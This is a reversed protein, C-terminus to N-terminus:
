EKPEDPKSNYGVPLSVAMKHILKSIGLDFSPQEGRLRDREESIQLLLEPPLSPLQEGISLVPLSTEVFPLFGPEKGLSTFDPLRFPGDISNGGIQGVAADLDGTRHVGLHHDIGEVRTGAHEHRVELVCSRWRPGIEESALGIQDVGVPPFQSEVSPLLGVLEDVLRGSQHHAGTSPVESLLMKQDVPAGHRRRQEVEAEISAPM